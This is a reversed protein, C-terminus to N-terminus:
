DEEMIEPNERLKSYTSQMAELAERIKKSYDEADEDEDPGDAMLDCIKIMSKHYDELRPDIQKSLEKLSAVADEAEKQDDKDIKVEEDGEDEDVYMFRGLKRLVGSSVIEIQSLTGSVSLTKPSEGKGHELLLKASLHNPM